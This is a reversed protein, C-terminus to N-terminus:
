AERTAVGNPATSGRGTAVEAPAAATPAAASTAIDAPPTSAADDRPPALATVISDADADAVAAALAAAPPTPLAAALPTPIAYVEAATVVATRCRRQTLDKAKVDVMKNLALRSKMYEASPLVLTSADIRTSRVKGCKYKHRIKWDSKQHASGCYAVQLCRACKKLDQTISCGFQACVQQKSAVDVEHFSIVRKAQELSVGRKENSTTILSMNLQTFFAESERQFEEPSRCLVAEDETQPLAACAKQHVMCLLHAWRLDDCLSNIIEVPLNTLYNSVVYM